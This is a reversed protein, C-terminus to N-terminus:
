WTTQPFSLVGGPMMFAAIVTMLLETDSLFPGAKVDRSPETVPQSIQHHVAPGETM